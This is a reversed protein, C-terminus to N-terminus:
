FEAQGTQCKVTVERYIYIGASINKNITYAVDSVTAPYVNIKNHVSPAIGYCINIRSKRIFGLYDCWSRTNKINYLAQAIKELTNIDPIDSTILDIRFHYPEADYEWWEQIKAGGFLTSMYDEIVGVTGKYRHWKIAKKVANRKQQLSWTEDYFDAHFQWALYNIIEEPLNDINAYISLKKNNEILKNIQVDLAECMSKIFPDKMLNQPMIDSLKMNEMETM